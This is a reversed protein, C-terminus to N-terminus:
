GLSRSAPPMAERVKAAAPKPNERARPLEHLSRNGSDRRYAAKNVTSHCYPCDMGLNGAHLKHSYPVPQVPTYGPEVTTPLTLYGALGAGGLVLLGVVAAGLRVYKDATKPFILAM